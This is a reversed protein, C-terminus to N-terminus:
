KHSKDFSDPAFRAVRVQRSYFGDPNRRCMASQNHTQAEAGSPFSRAVDPNSLVAFTQCMEEPPNPKSMVSDPCVFTTPSTAKLGSPVPSAVALSSPLTLIQSIVGAPLESHNAKLRAYRYIKPRLRVVSPLYRAVALGSPDALTHSM